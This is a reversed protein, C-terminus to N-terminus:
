RPAARNTAAVASRGYSPMGHGRQAIADRLVENAGGGFRRLPAKRYLREMAGRGPADPDPWALQGYPGLIQTGYDAIKQRLDSSFIKEVTVGMGAEGGEQRSAVDLSLLRAVEVDADLEALRRRVDPDDAPRQGDALRTTCLAILGDVEARLEGASTLAGRELDLAGVIYEWGRNVEGILNRAPVRVDAFHTLNTRNGSWAILPQIEIGPRDIPVMLVSIGRHKPADPDTRVCLWEHTAYHARSNWIKTGTVVWEDGDLTARTTLSALDTGAEPESYGVAATIAGSAIGPLFDARNAETGYRMIMPAVSTITLDPGPVGAYDFETILIHQAMASGGLGGFERPWTIGWWGRAGVEAKFRVQHPGEFEPGHERLEEHLQATAHERLFDRVEERWARESDTLDFDM